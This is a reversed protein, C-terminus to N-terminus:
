RGASHAGRLLGGASESSWRLVTGCLAAALSFLFVAPYLHGAPNIAFSGFEVAVSAAAFSILGANLRRYTDSSLRNHAAAQRLSWTTALITLASAGCMRLITLLTETPFSLWTSEVIWAPLALLAGGQAFRHTEPAQGPLLWSGHMRSVWAGFFAFVSSYAQIANGTWTPPQLPLCAITEGEVGPGTCRFLCSRVSPKEAKPSVSASEQSQQRPENPEAAASVSAASRVVVPHPSRCAALM